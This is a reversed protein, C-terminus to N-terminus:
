VVEVKNAFPQLYHYLNFTFSDFNDIIIISINKTM